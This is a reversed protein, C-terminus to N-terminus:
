MFDRPHPEMITRPGKHSSVAPLQGHSSVPLPFGDELWFSFARLLLWIPQCRSGSKWGGSSHSFLRSNLGWRQQETVAASCVSVGNGGGGRELFRSAAFQRSSGLGSRPTALPSVLVLCLEWFAADGFWGVWAQEPPWLDWVPCVLSCYFCIHGLQSM